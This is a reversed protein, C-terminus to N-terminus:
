KVHSKLYLEIFYMYISNATMSNEVYISNKLIPMLIYVESLALM